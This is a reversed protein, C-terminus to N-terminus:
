VQEVETITPLAPPTIMLIIEVVEIDMLAPLAFKM